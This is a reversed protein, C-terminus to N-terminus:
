VFLLRGLAAPVHFNPESTRTPSWALYGRNPGDGVCRFLNAALEKGAHPVFGFVKWPIRMMMIVRNKEVRGSTTLGTHFDFDTERKEPLQRIALDVWEGTPAAEFEYYKEPHNLDPGVFIEAVDRDWLGLTKSKTQPDRSTVLPEKQNCVFRVYLAEGSWLLRAKAHRSEPALDGSWYRDIEVDRARNWIQDDIDTAVLDRDIRTVRIQRMHFMDTSKPHLPKENPTRGNQDARDSLDLYYSRTITISNGAVGSLSLLAFTLSSVYMIGRHM